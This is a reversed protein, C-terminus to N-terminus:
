VASSTPGSAASTNRSATESATSSTGNESSGSRTARSDGNESRNRAVPQRPVGHSGNVGGGDTAVQDLRPGRDLVRGRRIASLMRQLHPVDPRSLEGRQLISVRAVQDGSQFGFAPPEGIAAPLLGDGLKGLIEGHAARLPDLRGHRPFVPHGTKRGDRPPSGLVDPPLNLRDGVADSYGNVSGRELSEVM